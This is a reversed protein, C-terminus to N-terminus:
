EDRDLVEKRAAELEAVARRYGDEDLCRDHWKVDNEAFSLGKGKITHAVVVLPRDSRTTLVNALAAVDHGDVQQVDFGFAAFKGTLPGSDLVQSTPGDLQLGNADIVVMLSGLRNHGAFSAAEWVSGEDCEGDGMVCYIRSPLGKRRAALALGAAYGLGMGLSDALAAPIGNEAAFGDARCLVVSSVAILPVYVGLAANMEPFCMAMVTRAVTAFMASIVILVPLRGKEPLLARLISTLLGTCVLVAGTALGLALGNAARTTVALMPCIGLALRLGPNDGLLGGAFLAGISKNQKAM